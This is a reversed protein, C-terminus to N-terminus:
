TGNQPDSEGFSNVVMQPFDWSFTAIIQGSIDVLSKLSETEITQNKISNLLRWPM